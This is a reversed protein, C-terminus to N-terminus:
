KKRLIVAAGLVAICLFAGIIIAPLMLGGQPKGQIPPEPAAKGPAVLAPAAAV